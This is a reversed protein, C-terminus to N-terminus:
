VGLARLLQSDGGNEFFPCFVNLAFAQSSNLHHFYKHLKVAPHSRLYDQIETRYSELINLWKLEKPLIHACKVERDRYVFVGAEKVGLRRTKYSALHQQFSQAFSTM